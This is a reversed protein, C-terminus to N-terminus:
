RHLFAHGLMAQVAKVNAGARIALSAATHRLDHPTVRPFDDDHTPRALVPRFWGTDSGTPRPVGEWRRVASGEPGQRRRARRSPRRPVPPYPVSRQEWSKPTGVHIVNKVQVANERVHLRRSRTSMGSASHPRRVGGSAPTRSRSCLVPHASEAALRSRTTPSTSAGMRRRRRARCTTSGGRLTVPLDTSGEGGHRPHGALVGLARLTVSASRRGGLNTAWAQVESPLIGAIERDGWKPEVHLRWAIELPEYSSPKLAPPQKGALWLDSLQAVTVRSLAPDIYDGVAKAVTVSALFLEAERKTKFGRKDTQSKDPKRYRVRWRRGHATTYATISGAM